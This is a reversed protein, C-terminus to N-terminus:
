PKRLSNWLNKEHERFREQSVNKWAADSLGASALEKDLCAALLRVEKPFHNDFYIAKSKEDQRIWLVWQTGDHVEAHYAALLNMVGQTKVEAFIRAIAERSLTVTTTQWKGVPQQRFVTVVGDHGFAVTDLGGSGSGRGLEFHFARGPDVSFPASTAPETRALPPDEGGAILSTSRGSKSAFEKEEPAADPSTGRTKPYLRWEEHTSAYDISSVVLRRIEAPQSAVVKSFKDDGWLKMLRMLNECHTEGGEGMFRMSFLSVLAKEDLHIARKLISRYDIKDWKAQAFISGPYEEMQAAEELQRKAEIQIPTPEAKALACATLTLLISPSSKM